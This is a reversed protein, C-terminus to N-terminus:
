VNHCANYAGQTELATRTWSFKAAQALGEAALREREAPDGLLRAISDIWEGLNEPDLLVGADGVVEPLSSVRSAIVPCGCSMAELPPLGFGEYLSPYCMLDACGYFAPLHEDPVYGTRIVDDETTSALATEIDQTLWGSKGVVVLRHPCRAVRKAARFAKVLMPLNKRPQLVGVALVFPGALGYQKELLSRADNSADTSLPQYQPGAALPIALVKAPPTRRYSALIDRRTNESVGIIRCARRISAPVSWNLLIRDKRSFLEPFLKFSIDHVTTVVPMSFFPSVTYQVHVIDVRDSLTALPLALLSWVRDNAAPVVRWRFSDSLALADTTPVDSRVYLLYEHESGVDSLGQILGRWYTRDGTFRGAVTRADIGIRM